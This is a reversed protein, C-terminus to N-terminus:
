RARAQASESRDRGVVSDLEDQVLRQAEPFVAAAMCGFQIASLSTHSGAQLM